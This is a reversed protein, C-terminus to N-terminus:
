RDPWSEALFPAVTAFPDPPQADGRTHPGRHLVPRVARCLVVPLPMWTRAGVDCATWHLMTSITTWRRRGVLTRVSAANPVGARIPIAIQNSTV